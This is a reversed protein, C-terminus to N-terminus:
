GKSPSPSIDKRRLPRELRSVADTVAWTYSYELQLVLCRLILEGAGVVVLDAREVHATADMTSNNRATVLCSIDICSDDLTTAFDSIQLLARSWPCKRGCSGRPPQGKCVELYCM